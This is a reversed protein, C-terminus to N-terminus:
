LPDAKGILINWLVATLWASLIVITWIVLQLKALSMKNQEDILAGLLKGTIGHGVIFVFLALLVIIIWWTVLTSAPNSKTLPWAFFSSAILIIVLVIVVVSVTHFWQWKMKARASVDASMNGGQLIICCLIYIYIYCINLFIQIVKYVALTCKM